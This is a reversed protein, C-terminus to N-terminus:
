GPASSPRYNLAGARLEGDQHARHAWGSERKESQDQAARRKGAAARGRRAGRRYGRGDRLAVVLGFRKVGADFRQSHLLFLLEPIADM